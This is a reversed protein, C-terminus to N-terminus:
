DCFTRATNPLDCVANKAQKMHMYIHPARRSGKHRTGGDRWREIECNRRNMGRASILISANSAYCIETNYQVGFHIRIYYLTSPTKRARSGGSDGPEGSPGM